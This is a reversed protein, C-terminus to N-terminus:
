KRHLLRLMFSGLHQFPKVSHSVRTRQMPKRQRRWCSAEGSHQLFATAWEALPFSSLPLPLCTGASQHCLWFTTCEMAEWKENALIWVCPWSCGCPLSPFTTKIQFIINRAAGWFEIFLKTRPFDLVTIFLICKLALHVLTQSRAYWCEEEPWHTSLCFYGCYGVHGSSFIHLLTPLINSLPSGAQDSFLTSAQQSSDQPCQPAM